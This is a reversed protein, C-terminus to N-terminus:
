VMFFESAANIRRKERNRPGSVAVDLPNRIIGTYEFGCRLYTNWGSGNDMATTLEVADAKLDAALREQAPQMLACHFPASVPLMVARKAGRQKALEAAREVAAKAGSIVIQGPSNINAPAVVEGHAADACVKELEALPLALAFLANRM